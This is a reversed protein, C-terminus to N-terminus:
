VHVPERLIMNNNEGKLTRTSTPLECVHSDTCSLMYGLTINALGERGQIVERGQGTPSDVLVRFTDIIDGDDVFDSVDRMEM